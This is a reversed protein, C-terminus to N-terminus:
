DNQPNPQTDWYRLSEQIFQENSEKIIKDGIIDYAQKNWAKEAESQKQSRMSQMQQDFKKIDFEADPKKEAFPKLYFIGIATVAIPILILISKKTLLRIM